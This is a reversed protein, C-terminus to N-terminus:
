GGFDLGRVIRDMTGMKKKAGGAPSMERERMSGITGATPSLPVPVDDADAYAQTQQKRLSSGSRMRRLVAKVGGGGTTPSHIDNNNNSTSSYANYVTATTATAASSSSSTGGIGPLSLKPRQKGKGPSDVERDRDRDRDRERGLDSPRKRLVGREREVYQGQQQQPQHHHHPKVLVSASRAVGARGVSGSGSGGSATTVSEIAGLSSSLIPPSGSVPMGASSSRRPMRMPIPVSGPTPTPTSTPTSPVTATSNPTPSTPLPIAVPPSASLGKGAAIRGEMELEIESIQKPSLIPMSVPQVAKKVMIPKTTTVMSSNATPSRPPSSPVSAGQIRGPPASPNLNPSTAVIAGLPMSISHHLRPQQGAGAGTFAEMGSVSRSHTRHHQYAKRGVSSTSIQSIASPPETSSSSPADGRYHHQRQHQYRQDRSEVDEDVSYGEVPSFKM